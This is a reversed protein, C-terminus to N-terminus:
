TFATAARGRWASISARTSWNARAPTSSASIARRNVGSPCREGLRVATSQLVTWSDTQSVPELQWRLSGTPCLYRAPEANRFDGGVATDRDVPYAATNTSADDADVAVRVSAAIQERVSAFGHGRQSLQLGAGQRPDIQRLIVTLLLPMLICSRAHLGAAVRQDRRERRGADALYFPRA